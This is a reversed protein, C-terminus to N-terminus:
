DEDQKDNFDTPDTPDKGGTDSDTTIKGCAIRAGSKGSPQSAGDDQDEHIVLSTGGGRLLSKDGDQLTAEDIMVESEVLGDDDAEINPMDGLHAGEPNMLGHEEGEPNYHSGASKFDSGKCVPMEHVHIGHLGPELGEVELEVRVGDSQESLKATGILDASENYMNITEANKVGTNQCATVFLILLVVFIRMLTVGKTTVKFRTNRKIDM